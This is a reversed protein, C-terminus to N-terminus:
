RFYWYSFVYDMTITDIMSASTVHVIIKKHWTPSSAPADPAAFEVYVINATLTFVGSKEVTQTLILNHYDDFDNFHPYVEGNEPGLSSPLTLSSLSTAIATDTSKDFARSTAEEILSTALSSATIGLESQIMLEGSTQYSTNM